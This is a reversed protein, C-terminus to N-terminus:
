RIMGCLGQLSPSLIYHQKPSAPVLDLAAATCHTLHPHHQDAVAFPGLRQELAQVAHSGLAPHTGM